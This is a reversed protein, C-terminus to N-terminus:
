QMDRYNFIGFMINIEELKKKAQSVSMSVLGFYIFILTM